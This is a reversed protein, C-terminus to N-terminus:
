ANGVLWGLKARFLPQLQGVRAALSKEYHEHSKLAVSLSLFAVMSDSIGLNPDAELYFYSPQNNNLLKEIFDKAYQRCEEACLNAERELDSRQFKALERNLATTAPRVAALTIYRSSCKGDRLCLDCSQTLVILFKYDQHRAYYPHFEDLVDKLKDTFELLDGQQLDGKPEQYTFHWHDV